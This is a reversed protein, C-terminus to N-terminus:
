FSEINRGMNFLTLLTQSHWSIYVLKWVGECGKVFHLGKGEFIDPFYPKREFKHQTTPRRQFTWSSNTIMAHLQMCVYSIKFCCPNFHCFIAFANQSSSSLYRTLQNQYALWNFNYFYLWFNVMNKLVPRGQGKVKSCEQDPVLRCSGGGGGQSM